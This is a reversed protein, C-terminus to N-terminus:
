RIYYGTWLMYWLLNVHDDPMGPLCAHIQDPRPSVGPNNAGFLHGLDRWQLDRLTSLWSAINLRQAQELSPFHPQDRRGRGSNYLVLTNNNPHLGFREHIIEQWAEPSFVEPHYVYYLRLFHGVEVMAINDNCGDLSSPVKVGPAYFQSVNSMGHCGAQPLQLEQPNTFVLPNGLQDAGVSHPSSFSDYDHSYVSPGGQQVQLSTIHESFGCTMAEWIQRLLSDGLLLVDGNSAHRGSQSQSQRDLWGNQLITEVVTRLRCPKSQAQGQGQQLDLNLVLEYDHAQAGPIYESSGNNNNNTNTATPRVCNYKAKMVFCTHNYRPVPFPSDEPVRQYSGITELDIEQMESICEPFQDRLVDLVTHTNNGVENPPNNNPRPEGKAKEDEHNTRWLVTIKLLPLPLMLLVIALIALIDRRFVCIRGTTATSM